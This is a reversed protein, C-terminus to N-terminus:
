NLSFLEDLLMKRTETSYNNMCVDANSHMISICNGNSDQEDLHERKLACHGLEHFVLFEKRLQGLLQWSEPDVRVEKTNAENKMICQAIVGATTINQMRGSIGLDRLDISINRIAAEIEFQTFYEELELDITYNEITPNKSCSISICIILAIFNYTKIHYNV